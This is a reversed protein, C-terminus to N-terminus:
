HMSRAAQGSLSLADSIDGSGFKWMAGSPVTQGRRLEDHSSTNAPQRRSATVMVGSASATTSTLGSATLKSVAVGASAQGGAAADLESETLRILLEM